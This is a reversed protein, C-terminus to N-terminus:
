EVWSSPCYELLSTEHIRERWTKKMIPVTLGCIGKFLRPHCHSIGSRHLSGNDALDKVGITRSPEHDYPAKEM